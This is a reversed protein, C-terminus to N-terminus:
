VGKKNGKGLALFWKLFSHRRTKTRAGNYQGILMSLETLAAAWSGCRWLFDINGEGDTHQPDFKVFSHIVNAFNINSIHVIRSM